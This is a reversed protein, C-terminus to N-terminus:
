SVVRWYLTLTGPGALKSPEITLTFPVFTNKAAKMYDEHVWTVGLDNPAAQGAGAEEVLKDISQIERAQVEDQKKDNKQAVLGASCAVFVAAAVLFAERRRLM